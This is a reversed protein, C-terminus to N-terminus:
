NISNQAQALSRERWVDVTKSIHGKLIALKRPDASEIDRENVKILVDSDRTGHIEIYGEQEDIVGVTYLGEGQTYIYVTHGDIIEVLPTTGEAAPDGQSDHVVKLGWAIFALESIEHTIVEPSSPDIIESKPTM